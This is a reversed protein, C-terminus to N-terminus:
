IKRTAWFSLGRRTVKDSIRRFFRWETGSPRISRCGSRSSGGNRSDPPLSRQDPKPGDTVRRGSRHPPDLDSQRV